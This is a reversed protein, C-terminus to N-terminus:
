LKKEDLAISLRGFPMGYKDQLHELESDYNQLRLYEAFSSDNELLMDTYELFLKRIEKKM